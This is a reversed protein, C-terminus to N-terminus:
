EAPFGLTAPLCLVQECNRIRRCRAETRRATAVLREETWGPHKLILRDYHRQELISLTSPHETPRPHM